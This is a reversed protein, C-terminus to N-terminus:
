GTVPRPDARTPAFRGDRAALSAGGELLWGGVADAQGDHVARDLDAVAERVPRSLATGSRMEARDTVARRRM